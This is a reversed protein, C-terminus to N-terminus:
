IRGAVEEDLREVEIMRATHGPGDLGLAMYPLAEKPGVLVIEKGRAYAYGLEMFASTQCKKMHVLMFIDAGDIKGFDKVVAEAPTDYDSEDAVRELECYVEYRERLKGILRIVDQRFADYEAPDTFASIPTALFIRKM